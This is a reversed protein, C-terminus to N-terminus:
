AKDNFYPIAILINEKRNYGEHRRRYDERCSYGRHFRLEQYTKIQIVSQVNQHYFGTNTLKNRNM